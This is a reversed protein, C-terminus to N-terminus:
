FLLYMTEIKEKKSNVFLFNYPKMNLDLLWCCILYNVIHLCLKNFFVNNFPDGIFKGYFSTNFM